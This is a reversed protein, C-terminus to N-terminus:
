NDALEITVELEDFVVIEDKHTGFNVEFTFDQSKGIIPPERSTVQRFSGTGSVVEKWDTGVPEKRSVSEVDVTHASYGSQRLAEKLMEPLTTAEVIQVIDKM